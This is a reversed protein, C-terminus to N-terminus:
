DYDFQTPGATVKFDNIDDDWGSICVVMFFLQLGITALEPCFHDNMPTGSKQM